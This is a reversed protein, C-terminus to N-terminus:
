KFSQIYATIDDLEEGNLKFPPMLNRNYGLKRYMQEPNIIQAKIDGSARNNAIFTFSPGFAEASQHHCGWCQKLFIKEGKELSGAGFSPSCLLGFLVGFLAIKHV